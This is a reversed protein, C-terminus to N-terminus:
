QPSGVTFHQLGIQPDPLTSVQRPVKTLAEWHRRTSILVPSRQLAEDILDDLSPTRVGQDTRKGRPAAIEAGTTVSQCYALSTYSLWSGFAAVAFSVPLTQRLPKRRKEKM